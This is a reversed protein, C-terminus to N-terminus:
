LGKNYINLAIALAYALSGIFTLWEWITTIGRLNFIGFIIYLFCSGCTFVGIYAIQRIYSPHDWLTIITIIIISVIFLFNMFSWFGHEFSRIDTPFIGIMIMSVSNLYGLIQITRILKKKEPQNDYWRSMDIFFPVLIIGLLILCISFLIWGRPNKGTDGLSSVTDFFPNYTQFPFKLFTFSAPILFAYYLINAIIATILSIPYEKINWDM